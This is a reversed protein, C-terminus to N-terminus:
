AIEYYKFDYATLSFSKGNHEAINWFTQVGFSPALNEGGHAYDDPVHDTTRAYEVGDIAFALYKDTWEVSYTHPKTADINKPPQFSNYSDGGSANRWHVTAYEQGNGFVEFVNIEPGPWVDSAPWLNAYGGVDDRNVSLTFEYKGFGFGDDKSNHPTIIGSNQWKGADSTITVQGAKSTDVNGWKQGFAGLGRDFTEHLALKFGPEPDVPPTTPAPPVSPDPPTNPTGPPPPPPAPNEPETGPKATLTGSSSKDTEAAESATPKGFNQTVFVAPMGRYDGHDLGIGIESFNPNLINERHGPSNMLNQHLQEVDARDMTAARSGGIYAVNEGASTYSYGAAKMREFPSSGGAGTHSFTDTQDMWASHDGSAKLLEGDFILPKVGAQVRAGNVLDLFYRELDSAGSLGPQPQPQPAPQPEPSPEPAPAPADDDRDRGNWRDRWDHDRGWKKGGHWGGHKWGANRYTM